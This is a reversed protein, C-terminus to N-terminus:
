HAMTMIIAIVNAGAFNGIIITFECLSSVPNLVPILTRM